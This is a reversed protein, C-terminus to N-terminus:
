NKFHKKLAEQFSVKNTVGEQKVLGPLKKEVKPKEPEKPPVEVNDADHDNTSDDEKKDDKKDDKAAGDTTVEEKKPAMLEEVKKTLNAVAEEVKQLRDNDLNDNTDAEKKPEEKAPETGAEEKKEPEKEDEMEKKVADVEEKIAKLDKAFKELISTIKHFSEENTKQSKKYTEVFEDSDM